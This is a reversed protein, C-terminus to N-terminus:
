FKGDVALLYYRGVLDYTSVSSVPYPPQVNTINDINLRATVNRTLQYEIALDHQFYPNIELIDQNNETFTLDYKAPGIYHTTWTAKVPGYSYHFDLQAKWRPQGSTGGGASTPILGAYDITDFGLGSISNLIRRTNVANFNVGVRGLDQAFNLFPLRNVPRDYNVGYIAGAYREYGANVYTEQASVVQGASNRQFLNCTSSPYTPSDYCNELLNGVGFYEIANTIDIHVYDATVSLGPIFRPQLVVGYTFSNGVENKLGPNGGATVPITEDSVISDTFTPLNAGLAAFATACNKQRAAPNPGSTINSVQCPDAGADYASTSSAFLETLAPARFTKSRSGRFTVDQIPSYRGGFSWAENIGAISNQVKRYAGDFELKYMGPANFGPGFIPALTEAYYENTDYAGTQGSIPVSYGIGEAAAASPTFSAQERRYEYGISFKWDGAPLKLITGSLNLQGDDQQNYSKNGFNATIYQLAAKSANGAGFVNLPVCNKIYPDTSNPNSVTVSCAPQGNAGAVANLAYSIPGPLGYSGPTFGPQNPDEFVIGDEDFSSWSAGRTWSASWNFNRNAVTFDGDLDIVGDVTQDNNSVPSPTLDANSRSLYFESVGNAALISRAQSNIFPNNANVALALGPYVASGDPPSPGFAYDAYNPQNVPERAENNSYFLKAHLHVHPSFDYSGMSTLVKRDLPTQLATLPAENVSDGGSSTGGFFNGYVTGPNFAVLNGNPAFQVPTSTGPLYIQNGDLTLPLGGTTAGSFRTNAVLIQGPIGNAGAGAAPNPAFGLQESTRPRDSYLLANTRDYQFDFALNLKGDLFNHGFAGEVSYRPADGYDSIGTQAVIEAGEYKQKMIVNVVGSVADSGYVAAGTAIVSEIRDVFLTPLANIDVQNGPENAFINTPNDGVFRHGDVLTLTRNTGLDFLNIYNRGTGFDNQDGSPRIADGAAPLENIADALNTFGRDQIYQGTLVEVPQDATLDKRAIRSGTVVVGEVQTSNDIKSRDATGSQSQTAVPSTDTSQAHAIGLGTTGIALTSGLLIQRLRMSSLMNDGRFLGKM